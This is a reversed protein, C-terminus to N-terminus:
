DLSRTQESFILLALAFETFEKLNSMRLKIDGSEKEKGILDKDSVLNPLNNRIYFTEPFTFFMLVATGGNLAVAIWLMLRWSHDITIFGAIITGFCIGISLM